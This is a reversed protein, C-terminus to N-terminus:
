QKINQNIISLDKDRLHYGTEDILKKAADRHSLAQKKDGKLLEYRCMALHYDTAYRKMNCREIIDHAEELDPKAAKPNQQQLHFNARDILFIPFDMITGAKRIDAVAEDFYDTAQASKLAQYCRALTLKDLAIDLLWRSIELGYKGRELVHEYILYHADLVV